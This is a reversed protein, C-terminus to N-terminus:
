ICNGVIEAFDKWTTSREVYEKDLFGKFATSRYKGM